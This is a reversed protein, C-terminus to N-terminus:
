WFDFDFSQRQKIQLALATGGGLTFDKLIPQLKLFVEQRKEDLIELHIKSTNESM